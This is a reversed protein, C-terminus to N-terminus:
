GAWQQNKHADGLSGERAQQNKMLKLDGKAWAPSSSAVYGLILIVKFELAEQM